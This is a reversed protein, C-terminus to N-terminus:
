NCSVDVREHLLIKCSVTLKTISMSSGHDPGYDDHPLVRPLGTWLEESDEDDEPDVEEDPGQDEGGDFPAVGVVEM